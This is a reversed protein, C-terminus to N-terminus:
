EESHEEMMEQSLSVSEENTYPEFHDGVDLHYTGKVGEYLKSVQDVMTQYYNLKNVMSYSNVKITNGDKLFLSFRNVDGYMPEYSIEKILNVFVPDLKTVSQIFLSLISNKLAENTLGYIVTGQCTVKVSQNDEVLQGDSLVYRFGGDLEVCGIVDKEQVEIFLQNFAKKKVTADIILPHNLVNEEIQQSDLTLFRDQYSLGTLKMLESRSVYNLGDFYIMSLKSMSSTFYFISGIILIIFLSFFFGKLKKKLRKKPKNNYKHRYQEMKVVKKVEM